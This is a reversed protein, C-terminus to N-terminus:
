YIAWDAVAAPTGSAGGKLYAGTSSQGAFAAATPMLFDPNAQSRGVTYTTSAYAPDANVTSTGLDGVDGIAFPGNTVVATFTKVPAPSAGGSALKNTMTAFTDGAGSFVSDIITYTQAQNGANQAAFCSSQGTAVGAEHITCRTINVPQNVAGGDLTQNSIGLNGHTATDSSNNYAIRCDTLNFSKVVRYDFV